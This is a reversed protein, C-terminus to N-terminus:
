RALFGFIAGAAKLECEACQHADHSQGAPILGAPILWQGSNRSRIADPDLSRWQDAILVIWVQHQCCDSGRERGAGIQLSSKSVVSCLIHVFVNIGTVFRM